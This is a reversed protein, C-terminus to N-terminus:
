KVSQLNRKQSSIRLKRSRETFTFLVSLVYGSPREGELDKALGGHGSYSLWLKDGPENNHSLWWFARLINEHNPWYETGENQSIDLLVLMDEPSDSWSRDNVLFERVNSVDNHCGILEHDTGPYNIGILLSKTRGM